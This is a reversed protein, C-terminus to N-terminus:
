LKDCVSINYSLIPNYLSNGRNRGLVYGYSPCRLPTAPADRPSRIAAGRSGAFATM